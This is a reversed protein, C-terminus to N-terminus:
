IENAVKWNVAISRDAQRQATISVFNVPLPGAMSKFVIMFRDAAKSAAAATIVVPIFNTDASLSVPTETQLFKDVFIAQLNVGALRKPIIKLQYAQEKMNLMSFQITDKEVLRGRAEIALKKGNRLIGFNEGSNTFKVADDRDISNAFEDDLAVLNGDVLMGTATYLRTRLFQRDAVTPVERSALRSGTAKMDETIVGSVPNVTSSNKLYVAQGSEINPYLAENAYLETGAPDASYPPDNNASIYQYAGANTASNLLPDWATYARQIDANATQSPAIMQPFSIASPYPNGVSQVADVGINFPQNQTNIQGRIRLNTAKKDGSLPLTRDARVFLMYGTSKVLPTGTNTIPKYNNITEDYWKMSYAPTVADMGTSGTPGTILTGYNPATSGGEQWAASILPSSATTVPTALFRWAKVGRVWREIEFKGTSNYDITMAAPVKAVQATLLTDSKITILKDAAIALRKAAADFAMQRVVSM